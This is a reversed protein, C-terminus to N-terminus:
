FFCDKRNKAQAYFNLCIKSLALFPAMKTLQPPFTILEEIGCCMWCAIISPKAFSGNCTMQFHSFAEICSITDFFTNTEDHTGCRSIRHIFESIWIAISTFNIQCTCKHKCCAMWIQFHKPRMSPIQSRNFSDMAAFRSYHCWEIAILIQICRCEIFTAHAESQIYKVDSGIFDMFQNILCKMWLAYNFYKGVSQKLCLQYNKREESNRCISLLYRIFVVITQCFWKFRGNPPNFMCYCCTAKFKTSRVCRIHRPKSIM